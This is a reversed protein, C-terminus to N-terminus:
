IKAIVLRNGVMEIIRHTGTEPHQGPALLATWQAGRHQVQALGQADWAHVQVSEGVDLHIDPNRSAGTQVDSRANKLHWATVALAGVSAGVVMQWSLSLGGHAALAATAAGLSLMLLYFTGTILEIGILGGTVLWWVTSLTMKSGQNILVKIPL